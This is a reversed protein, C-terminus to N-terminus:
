ILSGQPSSPSFLGNQRRLTRGIVDLLVASAPLVTFWYGWNPDEHFGILCVVANSLWAASLLMDIAIRPSRRWRIAQWVGLGL